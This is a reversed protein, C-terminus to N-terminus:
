FNQGRKSKASDIADRCNSEFRLRVSKSSLSGVVGTPVKFFSDIINSGIYQITMPM